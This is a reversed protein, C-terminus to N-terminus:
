GGSVEIVNGVEFERDGTSLNATGNSSFGVSTVQGEFFPTGSFNFSDFGVARVEYFYEGDPAQNGADDNGDWILNHDGATFAETTEITRMLENYSNYISIYSASAEYDLNFHLEDPVGNNLNITNDVAKVKNGIFSVANENFLATQYLHLSELNGNINQLQELSAFEAMQSTFESNEMPNLPDQNQLQTILLEMFEDKDIVDAGSSLQGANGIGEISGTPYILM